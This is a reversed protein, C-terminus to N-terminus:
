NETDVVHVVDLAYVTEEDAAQHCIGIFVKSLEFHRDEDVHCGIDESVAQGIGGDDDGAEDAPRHAHYEQYHCCYGEPHEMPLFIYKLWIVFHMETLGLLLWLIYPSVEHGLLRFCPLSLCAAVSQSM